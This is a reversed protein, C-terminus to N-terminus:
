LVELANTLQEVGLVKVEFILYKGALPHNLDVIARQEELAVVTMPQGDFLEYISGTRATPPLMDRRVEMIKQDDYPGFAEDPQLEVRKQEGPKMGMLADELAPIIEEEGATYESVNDLLRQNTEPVILTFAITVNAGDTVIPEEAPMVPQEGVPGAQSPLTAANGTGIGLALALVFTEIPRM